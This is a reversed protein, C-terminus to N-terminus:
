IYSKPSGEESNGNNGGSIGTNKRSIPISNKNSSLKYFSENSRFSDQNNDNNSVLSM